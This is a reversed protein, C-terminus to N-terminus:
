RRSNQYQRQAIPLFIQANPDNNNIMIQIASPMGGGEYILNAGKNLMINIAEAEAQYVKGWYSVLLQIPTLGSNSAINVQTGSEMILLEFPLTYNFENQLAYFIATQGASDRMNLLEPNNDILTGIADVSNKDAAFLCALMLLNVNSTGGVTYVRKFDGKLAVLQQHITNRDDNRHAQIFKNVDFQVSPQSSKKSSSKKKKSAASADMPLAFLLAILIVSAFLKRTM